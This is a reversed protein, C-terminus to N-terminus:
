GAVDPHSPVGALAHVAGPAAAREVAGRPGAPALAPPVDWWPILADPQKRQDRDFTEPVVFVGPRLCPVKGPEHDQGVAVFVAGVLRDAM